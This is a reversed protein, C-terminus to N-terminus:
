LLGLLFCVKNMNKEYEHTVTIKGTDEDFNVGPSCIFEEFREFRKKLLRLRLWIEKWPIPDELFAFFNCVFTIADGLEHIDAVHNLHFYTELALVVISDSDLDWIPGGLRAKLEDGRTCRQKNEFANFCPFHPKCM